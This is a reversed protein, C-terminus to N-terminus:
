FYGNCFLPSKKIIVLEVSKYRIKLNDTSQMLQNQTRDYFEISKSNTM